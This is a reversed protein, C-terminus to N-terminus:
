ELTIDSAGLRWPQFVKCEIRGPSKVSSVRANLGGIAPYKPAQKGCQLTYRFLTIHTIHTIHTMHLNGHSVLCIWNCGHFDLFLQCSISNRVRIQSGKAKDFAGDIQQLDINAFGQLTKDKCQVHWFTSFASSSFSRGLAPLRAERKRYTLLLRWLGSLDM